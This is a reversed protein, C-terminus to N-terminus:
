KVETLSNAISNITKTETNDTSTIFILTKGTTLMYKSSGGISLNYVTGSPVISTPISASATLKAADFGNPTPQMTITISVKKNSNVLQYYATDDNEGISKKDIIYGEPLPDPYHLPFNVSSIFKKSFPSHTSNKSIVFWTAGGASLVLIVAFIVVLVLKKKSKPGDIM